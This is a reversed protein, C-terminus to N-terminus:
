RIDWYKKYNKTFWDAEEKSKFPIYEKTKVAYNYADSRSLRKLSKTNANYIIEPYVIFQDKYDGWSMLHTMSQKSKEDIISPYDAPNLIRQVFQKDQHEGLIKSIIWSDEDIDPM